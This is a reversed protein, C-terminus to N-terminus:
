KCAGAKKGRAKCNPSYTGTAKCPCSKGCGGAAKGLRARRCLADAKCECKADEATCGQPAKQCTPCTEPDEFCTACRGVDYCGDCYLGYSPDYDQKTGDELIHGKHAIALVLENFGVNAADLELAIPAELLAAGDAGSV